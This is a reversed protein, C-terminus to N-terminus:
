NKVSCNVFQLVLVHVYVERGCTGACNCDLCVTYQIRGFLDDLMLVRVGMDHYWVHVGFQAIVTDSESWPSRFSRSFSLQQRGPRRAEHAACLGILWPVILASSLQNGFNELPCLSSTSQQRHLDLCCM